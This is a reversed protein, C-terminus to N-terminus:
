PIMWERIIWKTTWLNDQRARIIRSRIRFQTKILRKKVRQESEHPPIVTQNNELHETKNKQNLNRVLCYVGSFDKLKAM